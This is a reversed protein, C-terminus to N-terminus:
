HAAAQNVTAGTLRWWSVLFTELAAKASVYHLLQEKTAESLALLQKAYGSSAPDTATKQGLHKLELGILLDVADSGTFEDNILEGLAKNFDIIRSLSQSDQGRRHMFKEIM